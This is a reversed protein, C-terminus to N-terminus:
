FSEGWCLDGDEPCVNGELNGDLSWCSFGMLAIGNQSELEIIEMQAETYKDMIQM